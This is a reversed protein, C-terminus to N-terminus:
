SSIFKGYYNLLGLFARLEHENRPPPAKQIAALKEATTHLDEVDIHRGLYEVSTGMFECKSKKVRFGYVQLRELVAALM